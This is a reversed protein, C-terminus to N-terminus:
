GGNQAIQVKGVHKESQNSFSQNSSASKSGLLKATPYTTYVCTLQLALGLLDLTSYLRGSKLQNLFVSCRGFGSM